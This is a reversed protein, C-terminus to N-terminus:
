NIDHVWIGSEGVFYTHTNEVTINYVTTLMLRDDYKWMYEDNETYEGAYVAELTEQNFDTNLQGNKLDVLYGTWANIEGIGELGEAAWGVGKEATRLIPSWEHVLAKNRNLLTVEDSASLSDARIWGVDVMWFPHNPTCVVGSHVVSDDSPFEVFRIMYITNNEFRHTETIRQYSLESNLENESKSLVRDGVRLQEVPVLGEDTHVLTGAVFCGTNKM